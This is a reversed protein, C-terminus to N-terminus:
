MKLRRASPPLLPEIGGTWLKFLSVSPCLVDLRTTPTTLSFSLPGDGADGGCRLLVVDDLYLAAERGQKHRGGGTRSHWRMVAGGIGVGGGGGGGADDDDDDDLDLWFRCVAQSNGGDAAARPSAFSIILSITLKLTRM